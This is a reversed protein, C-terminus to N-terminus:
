RMGASLDCWSARVGGAYPRALGSALMLQAIDEPPANANGPDGALVDAVVRGGYKDLAIDRLEVPGAGLFDQLVQTALEAQAAESACRAKREPADMGRIRVLTTIEQGFWIRIRAEFTDGDVIRTVVAAFPGRLGDRRLSADPKQAVGQAARPVPMAALDALAILLAGALLLFHRKAIMRSLKM